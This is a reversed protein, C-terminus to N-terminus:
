GSETNARSPPGDLLAQWDAANLITDFGAFCRTNPRSIFGLGDAIALGNLRGASARPACACHAHL